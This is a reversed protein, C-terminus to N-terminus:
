KPSSTYNSPILCFRQYPSHPLYKKTQKWSNKLTGGTPFGYKHFPSSHLSAALISILYWNIVCGTLHLLTRRDLRFVWLCSLVWSKSLLLCFINIIGLSCLSQPFEAHKSSVRCICSEWSPSQHVGTKVVNTDSPCLFGSSSIMLFHHNQPLFTKQWFLCM